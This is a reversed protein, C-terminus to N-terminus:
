DEKPNGEILTQTIINSLDSATRKKLHIEVHGDENVRCFTVDTEMIVYVGKESQRAHIKMRESSEITWFLEKKSEM